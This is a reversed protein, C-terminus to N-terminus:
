RNNNKFEPKKVLIAAVCAPDLLKNPFMNRKPQNFERIIVSNGEKIPLDDEKDRDDKPYVDEIQKVFAADAKTTIKHLCIIEKANKLPGKSSQIYADIREKGEKSGYLSVVELSARNNSIVKKLTIEKGDVYFKCIKDKYENDNSSDFYANLICETSSGSQLTDFLIVVKKIEEGTELCYKHSLKNWYIDRSFFDRVRKSSKHIYTDYISVLANDTNRREKPVILTNNKDYESIDNRANRFSICQHTTILSYFSEWKRKCKEERKEESEEKYFFGCYLLHNLLRLYAVSEFDACGSSEILANKQLKMLNIVDEIQNSYILYPINADIFNLNDKDIKEKIHYLDDIDVKYEINGTEKDRIAYFERNVIEPNDSFSIKSSVITQGDADRYEIREEFNENSSIKIVEKCDTLEYMKEVHKKIIKSPFKYPLWLFDNFKKELIFSKRQAYRISEFYDNQLNKINTVYDDSDDIKKLWAEIISEQLNKQPHKLLDFVDDIPKSDYELLKFISGLMIYDFGRGVRLLFFPKLVNKLLSSANAIWSQGNLVIFRDNILFPNTIKLESGVRIFSNELFVNMKKEFFIMKCAKHLDLLNSTKLLNEVNEIKVTKENSIICYYAIPEGRSNIEEKLSFDNLLPANFYEKKEHRVYIDFSDRHPILLTLSGNKKFNDKWGNDGGVKKVNPNRLHKLCELNSKNIIKDIKKVIGDNRKFIELAILITNINVINLGNSIFDESRIVFNLLKGIPFLLVGNKKIQFIEHMKDLNDCLNEYNKMLEDSPCDNDSALEKVQSLFKVIIYNIDEEKKDKYRINEFACDIGEIIEEDINDQNLKQVCICFLEDVKLLNRNIEKSNLSIIYNLADLLVKKKIKELLLCDIFIQLHENCTM